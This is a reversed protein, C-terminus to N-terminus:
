QKVEWVHIPNSQGAFESRHVAILPELVEGINEPQILVAEFQSLPITIPVIVWGRTGTTVWQGTLVNDETPYQFQQLYVGYKRTREETSDGSRIDLVPEKKLFRVLFRCDLPRSKREALMDGFPAQTFVEYYPLMGKKNIDTRTLNEARKAKATDYKSRWFGDARDSMCNIQLAYQSLTPAKASPSQSSPPPVIVRERKGYSNNCVKPVGMTWKTGNWNVTWEEAPASYEMSAERPPKKFKVLVDRWLATKGSRMFDLKMGNTVHTEMGPKKMAEILLSIVPEPYGAQRMVRPADAIAAERSPYAPDANFHEWTAEAHASSALAMALALMVVVITKM